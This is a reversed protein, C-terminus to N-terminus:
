RSTCRPPLASSRRRGPASASSSTRSTLWYNGAPASAVGDKGSVTIMRTGDWAVLAVNFEDYPLKLTGSPAQPAPKAKAAPLKPSRRVASKATQKAPAAGASGCVLSAVLLAPVILTSQSPKMPIISEEL